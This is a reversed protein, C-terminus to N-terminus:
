AMVKRDQGCLFELFARATASADAADDSLGDYVVEGTDVSRISFRFLTQHQRGIEPVCEVETRYRTPSLQRMGPLICWLATPICACRVLTTLVNNM